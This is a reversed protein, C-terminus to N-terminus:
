VRECKIWSRERATWDGSMRQLGVPRKGQRMTRKQGRGLEVQGGWGWDEEESVEELTCLSSVHM